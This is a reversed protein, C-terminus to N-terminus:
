GPERTVVPWFIPSISGRPAPAEQVVSESLVRVILPDASSIMQENKSGRRAVRDHIVQRGVDQDVREIKPLVAIHKQDAATALRGDQPRECPMQRLGALGHDGRRAGVGHARRGVEALADYDVVAHGLHYHLKARRKARSSEDRDAPLEHRRGVLQRAEGGLLEVVQTVRLRRVINEDLGVARRAPRELCVVGVLRDEGVRRVEHDGDNTNVADSLRHCVLVDMPGLPKLRKYPAGDALADRRLVHRLDEEV